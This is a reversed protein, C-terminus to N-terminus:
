RRKARRAWYAAHEKDTARRASIVRIRQGRRTYFMTLVRGADTEAVLGWRREGPASRADTPMRADDYFASEVEEIDFREEIKGRNGDDWEFRGDPANQVSM